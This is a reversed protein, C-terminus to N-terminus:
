SLVHKELVFCTFSGSLVSISDNQVVVDVDQKKGNVTKVTATAQLTDGVKVPKLFKVEASGLVVNPHNVALMAAYDALGFVFGGHVLGTDDAAMAPTTVLVVSSAGDTTCTPTGCLSQDIKLHTRIDELLHEGTATLDALHNEVFVARRPLDRKCVHGGYFSLLEFKFLSSLLSGQQAM